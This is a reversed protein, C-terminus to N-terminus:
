VHNRLMLESPYPNLYVQDMVWRVPNRKFHHKLLTLPVILPIRDTRYEEICSVLETKDTDDISKKLYGLLHYLVNAHKKSTAIKKLAQMFLAGYQDLLENGTAKGSQAVLQGMERYAQTSHSLLTMKHKSHFEVLDKPRPTKEILKSWRYYAFIREIFNERLHLDHLRGEEEVPLLPLEKMFAEAFLGRGKRQPPVGARKGSYIRVREIGCSPSDKKFIYGHLNASKLQEVRTACFRNMLDTIDKRSRVGLLRIGNETETLNMSERPIGLGAEVEPCVPIWKFFKGLTMTLYPDQKHGGDHRVEEGLLCQSIGIRIQPKEPEEKKEKM